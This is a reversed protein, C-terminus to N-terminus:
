KKQLKSIQLKNLKDFIKFYKQELENYKEKGERRKKSNTMGNIRHFIDRSLNYMDERIQKRQGQLKKIQQNRTM